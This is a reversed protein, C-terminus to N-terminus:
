LNIHWLDDKVDPVEFNVDPVEFDVERVENIQPGGRLHVVHGVYNNFESVEFKLDGVENIQPGGRLHVADPAEDELHPCTFNSSRCTFKSTDSTTSCRGARPADVDPV